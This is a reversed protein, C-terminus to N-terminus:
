WQKNRESESQISGRRFYCEVVTTTLLEKLVVWVLSVSM